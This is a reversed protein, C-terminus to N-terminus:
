RTDPKAAVRELYGALVDREAISLAPAARELLDIFARIEDPAAPFGINTGDSM